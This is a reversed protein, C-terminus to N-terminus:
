QAGGEPSTNDGTGDAPAPNDGAPAPASATTTETPLKDGGEIPKRKETRRVENATMWAKNGTALQYSKYRTMTDSALVVDREAIAVQGRPLTKRTFVSEARTVMGSLASFKILNVADSEVNAYSKAPSDGGLWGVPLGFMLEYQTLSFKRAEILQMEEPNWSLPEFDLNPGLAQITRDRQNTIWKAKAAALDAPDADPNTSKLLGTPVGHLSISAAQRELDAGLTLASLQTELVGLGRLALPACPGKVHFIRDQDFIVGNVDYQRRGTLEGLPGGTTEPDWRVGVVSTPIPLIATPLGNVQSYATYIGVMNGDWLYDMAWSAYVTAPDEVTGAPSDLIMANRPTPTQDGDADVRYSRFPMQAFLDSLMVSARWAAPVSLFGRYTSAQWPTFGYRTRFDILISEITEGAARTQVPARPAPRVALSGLGM